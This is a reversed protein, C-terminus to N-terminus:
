FWVMSTDSTFCANSEHYKTNLSSLPTAMGFDGDANVPASYLDLFPQDNWTHRRFEAVDPARASAFVAKNGYYAVGMDAQETNSALDKVVCGPIPRESLKTAYTSANAQRKGRSDASNQSEYTRLWKDAEGYKGNARLAQAYNYHDIPKANPMAVVRAYWLEAQKFDRVRMYSQALKRAYVSDPVAKEAAREYNSIAKAYALNEYAKDGATVFRNQALTLLPLAWLLLLPLRLRWPLRRRGVALENVPSPIPVM